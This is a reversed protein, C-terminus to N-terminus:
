ECYANRVGGDIGSLRDVRQERLRGSGRAQGGRVRGDLVSRKTLCNGFHKRSGIVTRIRGPCSTREPIARESTTRVFARRDGLACAGARSTLVSPSVVGVPCAFSCPVRPSLGPAQGSAARVARRPPIEAGPQPAARSPNATRGARASRARRARSDERARRVSGREARPRLRRTLTAVTVTWGLHRRLSVKWRNDLRLRTRQEVFLRAYPQAVEARVAGRSVLRDHTQVCQEQAGCAELTGPAPRRKRVQAPVVEAVDGILGGVVREDADERAEVVKAARAPERGPHVLERQELRRHLQPLAGPLSPLDRELGSVHLRNVLTSM